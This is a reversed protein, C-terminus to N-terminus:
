LVTNIESVCKADAAFEFLFVVKDFFCMGQLVICEGGYMFKCTGRASVHVHYM